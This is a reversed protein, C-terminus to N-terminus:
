AVLAGLGARGAVEAVTVLERRPEARVPELEDAAVDRDTEALRVPEVLVDAAQLLGEVVEVGGARRVRARDEGVAARGLARGARPRGRGVAANAQVVRAPPAEGVADGARGLDRPRAAEARGEVVVGRRVD